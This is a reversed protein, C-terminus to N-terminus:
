FGKNLRKAPPNELPWSQPIKPPRRPGLPVALLYGVIKGDERLLLNINEKIALAKSYYEFGEDYLWEKPFCRKELELIKQVLADDCSKVLEVTQQSHMINKAAM